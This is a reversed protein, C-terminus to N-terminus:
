TSLSICVKKAKEMEAYTEGEGEFEFVADWGFTGPGRAPVIKGECKGQFLIPTHGPGACYAFTCVATAGKDEYAMLLNNLGEHDLAELFYKIYPGPLGKLARFSLATDETLVASSTAEAARRAKDIAIEEISGQIEVLDLSTNTLAVPTTSLIAQVEALKNKNSTIFNLTSPRPKSTSSTTAM